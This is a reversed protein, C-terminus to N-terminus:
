FARYYLTLYIITNYLFPPFRGDVSVSFMPLATGIIVLRQGHISANPLPHLPFPSTPICHMCHTFHTTTSLSSLFLSSIRSSM